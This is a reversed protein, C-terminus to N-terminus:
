TSLLVRRDNGLSIVIARIIDGPLYCDEIKINESEKEMMNNKRIIGELV